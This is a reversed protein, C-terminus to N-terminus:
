LHFCFVFFAIQNKLWTNVFLLCLHFSKKSDGSFLDFIILRNQHMFTPILWTPQLGLLSSYYSFLLSISSQVIFHWWTACILRILHFYALQSNLPNCLLFYVFSYVRVNIFFIVATASILNSLPFYARLRSAGFRYVLSACCHVFLVTNRILSM